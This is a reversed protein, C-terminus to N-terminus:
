GRADRLADLEALKVPDDAAIAEELYYNHAINRIVEQVEGTSEAAIVAFADVLERLFGKDLDDLYGGLGEMMEVATDPDVTDDDSLELFVIFSSIIRAIQLVIM